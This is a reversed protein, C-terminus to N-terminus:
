SPKGNEAPLFLPRLWQRTRGQCQPLFVPRFRVAGRSMTQGDIWCIREGAPALRAAAGHARRAQGPCRYKKGVRPRRHLRHRAGLPGDPQDAWPVLNDFTPSNSDEFDTMFVKAGSNLANIVMKRDTPGTIEVRRDQLDAPIPAVQWSGERIARTEPLFDPLEGKGFRRPAPPAHPWCGCATRRRVDPAPGGRLGLAEPTLIARTNPCSKAAFHSAGAPMKAM